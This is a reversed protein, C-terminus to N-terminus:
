TTKRGFIKIKLKCKSIKKFVSLVRAISKKYPKMYKEFYLFFAFLFSNIVKYYKSNDFLIEKPNFSNKFEKVGKSGGLSINYGICQEKISLKIAEWQLFDGTRLDPVEKKSGGLIYTYYNGAKLLLICGKLEEGKYAALMKLYGKKNLNLLSQKMDKWERISYKAVESNEKFLKYGKEIESDSVMFKLDLGKRYSNRINRRISPKLQMILSEEDEAKLDIWNLGNLSFVYKFLHGSNFSNLCPLNIKNTDFFPINIQCYCVKIDKARQELTTILDNIIKIEKNIALPGIPLIYFKFFAVKALVACYGGIITEDKIFLCLEYDFGYSTYSKAWDSLQLYSGNSNSQVFVDWKDIWHQEKTFITQMM